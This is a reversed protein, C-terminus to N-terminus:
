WTKKRESMLQKKNTIRPPPTLTLSEVWEEGDPWYGVVVDHAHNHYAGVIMRGETDEICLIQTEPEVLIYETREGPLRLVYVAPAHPDAPDIPEHTGNPEVECISPYSGKVSRWATGPGYTQEIPAACHRCHATITTM